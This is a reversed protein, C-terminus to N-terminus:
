EKDINKVTATITATNGALDEVMFTFSGNKAFTYSIKENNNLVRIDENASIVAEVNQNTPLYASYGDPYKITLVPAIRDINNVTATVIVSNGALDEIHFDFFGNETFTHSYNGENYLVEIPEDASVVAVVNKNTLGAPNYSISCKPAMKDINSVEATLDSTNGAKDRVKVTFTGNDATQLAVGEYLGEENKDNFVITFNKELIEVPENFVFDVQVCDKTPNTNSYNIQATPADRDICGVAAVKHGQLGSSDEYLFVFQGNRDFVYDTQGDNNLVKCGPAAFSIRAVISKSTISSMAAEDLPVDSGAYCYTVQAQTVTSSINEVKATVAGTKGPGYRYNFTFEGNAAFAYTNSGNNNLIEVPYDYDFSLTATVPGDTPAETSYGILPVPISSSINNVAVTVKGINGADDELKFTFEGNKSFTIVPSGGNNLVKVSASKDDSPLITVIVPEETWEKTSCDVYAATPPTRDINYVAGVATGKTGSNSFEATVPFVGNETFVYIYEKGANAPDVIQIDDSHYVSYTVTVDDKTWESASYLIDFSPASPDISDVTAAAAGTLGVRDTFDFTFSGNEKFIKQISGGNNTVTVPENTQLYVTVPSASADKTSYFIEGVPPTKDINYVAATVTDKNGLDDQFEFIFEGNEDFTHTNGSENTFVAESDDLAATCTISESAWETLSHSYSLSAKPPTKDINSVAAKVRGLNGAEDGLLFEFEGNKEFVCSFNGENNLVTVKGADVPTLTATVNGATMETNSYAITGSPQTRDMKVQAENTGSINGLKDRFRVYAKYIGEDYSGLSWKKYTKFTEWETWTSGDASFQMRAEPDDITLKLENDPTNTYSRTFEVSGEPPNCDIIFANSVATTTNNYPDSAKVWLYWEGDESIDNQTVTVSYGSLNSWASPEVEKSQSWGYIKYSCSFMRDTYSVVTSVSKVSAGGSGNVSFSIRPARTDIKYSNNDTYVTTNGLKDSIKMFLIYEGEMGSDAKVTRDIGEGPIPKWNADDRAGTSSWQYYWSSNDVGANYGENAAPEDRILNVQVDCDSGYYLWRFYNLTSGLSPGSYDFSLPYREFAPDNSNGLIDKSKFCLEYIGETDCSVEFTSGSVFPKWEEPYDEPNEGKKVLQYYLSTEDVKGIKADAAAATILIPLDRSVVRDSKVYIAPGENDLLFGESVSHMINNRNDEALIHLYYTGSAGEPTPIGTEAGDSGPTLVYGDDGKVGAKSCDSLVVKGAESEPSWKYYIENNKLGSLADDAKVNLIHSKKYQDRVTGTYDYTIKPAEWDEQNFAVEAYDENWAMDYVWLKLKYRGNKDNGADITIPGQTYIPEEQRWLYQSDGASNKWYVEWQYKYIVGTSDADTHKLNIGTHRDKYAGPDGAYEIKAHPLLTDSRFPKHSGNNGTYLSTNVIQPWPENWHNYCYNADIVEGELGTAVIRDYTGVLKDGQSPTYAFTLAKDAVSTNTLTAYVPNGSSNVINLALRSGESAKVPEDFNMQIRLPVAVREGIYEFQRDPFYKDMDLRKNVDWDFVSIDELEPPKKDSLNFIVDDFYADMNDGHKDHAELRVIIKATNSPIKNWMDALTYDDFFSYKIWDPNDHDTRNWWDETEKRWHKIESGDSAYCTVIGCGHDVGSEHPGYFYFYSQFYLQESEVLSKIQPDTLDITQTMYATGSGVPSPLFYNNVDIPITMDFGRNGYEPDVNM